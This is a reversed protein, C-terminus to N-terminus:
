SYRDMRSITALLKQAEQRAKTANMRSLSERALELSVRFETPMAGLLYTRAENIHERAFEAEDPPSCHEITILLRDLKNRDPM